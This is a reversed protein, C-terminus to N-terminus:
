VMVAHNRSVGPLLLSFHKFSYDVSDVNTSPQYPMTGFPLTRNHGPVQDDMGILLCREVRLGDPCGTYAECKTTSTTLTEEVGGTCGNQKAWFTFSSNAGSFCVKDATGCFGMYSVPKAPNCSAYNWSGSMTVIGKFVDAAECALKNALFSGASFGLVFLRSRDVCASKTLEESVAKALAVDDIHKLSFSSGFFGAKWACPRLSDFTDEAPVHDACAETSYSVPCCFKSPFTLSTGFPIALSFGYKEAYHTQNMLKVVDAWPNSHYGHFSIMGPGEEGDPRSKPIYLLMKRQVNQVELDIIHLKGKELAPTCKQGDASVVAFILALFLSTM